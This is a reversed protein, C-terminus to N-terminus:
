SVRSGRPLKRIFEALPKVELAVTSVVDDQILVLLNIPLNTGMARISLITQPQGDESITFDVPRLESEPPVRGKVRITVPITVPVATVASPGDSQALVSN